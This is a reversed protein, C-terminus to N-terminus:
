VKVTRFSKRSKKRHEIERPYIGAHLVRAEGKVRAEPPPTDEEPESALMADFRVKTGPMYEPHTVIFLDNHIVGNLVREGAELPDMGPPPGARRPFGAPPPNAARFPNEEGTGIYNDTNVGGPVFASTGVTTGELEVRLAEILGVVAIKTATYVGLNAGPLLGSMSSTVVIQSGEGHELMHPLLTAVSNYTATFNVALANDWDSYSTDSIKARTKSGANNVMLHLKGFQGKIQELAKAWGDRDTVDHKIPLVGANGKKFLPLAAKLREENRYGICVKMGANSAARAIGLGIGDSSATVYAVKGKLDHLPAPQSVKPEPPMPPRGPPAGGGAAPPNQTQAVAYRSLGLGALISGTGYVAGEALFRRRDLAFKSSM